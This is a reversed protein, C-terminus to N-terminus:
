HEGPGPLTKDMLDFGARDVYGERRYFARAAVNGRALQLSINTCGDNLCHAEATRLLMRGVGRGRAEPVVFFEDIEATLGLHELSFVCVVLLYGVAMDDERAIWGLGCAPDALQRRLAAGVEVPDFGPISEFAWYRAVLLLVAEVADPRIREAQLM